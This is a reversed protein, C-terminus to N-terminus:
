FFDDGADSDEATANEKVGLLPTLVDRVQEPKFPKRVYGFAGDRRLQDIRTQSGETSAIVIPIDKLRPNQKIRELLKIGNMTPMNIDVMMVDIQHDALRALAEIGNGAEYIEGIDLGAMALTRKVMQRVTVSDDVILINGPM